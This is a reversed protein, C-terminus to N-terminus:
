CSSDKDPAEPKGYHYGQGLTIGLGRLASAQYEHEIGEAIVTLGLEAALVAITRIMAVGTGDKGIESVFGRDIKIVDFPLSQLRMLNSYGVGFDDIFLGIDADRIRHLTAAAEATGFASETLEIALQAATAGSEALIHSVTDAFGADAVQLSSVNVSIYQGPQGRRAIFECARRMVANGLAGIIKLHEALVIFESPAIPGLTPHSWRALAEFGLVHADDLRVIPQVHIDINGSEVDRRLQCELMFQRKAILSQSEDYFEFPQGTVRKARYMAIDANKILESGTAGDRPYSAIGVSVSVSLEAASLVYPRDIERVIREALRRAELDDKSRALVVFEDGGLRAIFDSERAVRSLRQATAVILEDGIGHGYNDNVQKFGNLDMFLVSFVEGHRQASALAKSLALEFAMRNPLATLSDRHALEHLRQNAAELERQAARLATLDTFIGVLVKAGDEDVFMTKTTRITRISGDAHTHVEENTNARRTEFVLRDMTNFTCAQDASFLDADTKGIFRERPIGTFECLAQNVLLFRLKHDKVLIPDAVSDIINNLFLTDRMATGQQIVSALRNVRPEAGLGVPPTSVLTAQSPTM